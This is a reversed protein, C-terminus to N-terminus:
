GNLALGLAQFTREPMLGYNYVDIGAVGAARWADVLPAVQAPETVEPQIARIMGWSPQALSDLVAVRAPVDDPHAAYGTLIADASAMLAM